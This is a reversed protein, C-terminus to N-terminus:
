KRFKDIFDSPTIAMVKSKSFDKVNKTVIYDAKIRAAIADLVADEFDPMDSALGNLIDRQQADACTLLQMIKGLSDKAVEIGAEKRLIYFIDTAATASFYLEEKRLNRIVNLSANFFPERRLLIDLIVNTDVVVKM